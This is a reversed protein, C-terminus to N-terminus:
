DIPKNGIIASGIHSILKNFMENPIVKKRPSTKIRAALMFFSTNKSNGVSTPSYDFFVWSSTVFETETFDLALSTIYESSPSLRCLFHM